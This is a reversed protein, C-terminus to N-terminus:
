LIKDNKKPLQLPEHRRHEGKSAFEAWRVFGKGSEFVMGQSDSVKAPGSRDEREETNEFVKLGIYINGRWHETGREGAGESVSAQM